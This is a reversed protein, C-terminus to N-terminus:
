WAGVRRAEFVFRVTRRLWPLWGPDRDLAARRVDLDIDDADLVVDMGTSTIRLRGPRALRRLVFAEVTNPTTDGARAAFLMAPAGATVALLAAAPASPASPLLLSVAPPERWPRLRGSTDLTVLAPAAELSGRHPWTDLLAGLGARLTEPTSAGAM